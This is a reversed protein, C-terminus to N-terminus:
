FCRKGAGRREIFQKPKCRSMERHPLAPFRKFHVRIPSCGWKPPRVQAKRQRGINSMLGNGAGLAKEDRVPMSTGFGKRTAHESQDPWLELLGLVTKDERQQSSKAGVKLHRKSISLAVESPSRWRFHPYSEKSTTWGFTRQPHRSSADWRVVELPNM